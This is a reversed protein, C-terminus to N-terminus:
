HFGLTECPLLRERRQAEAHGINAAGILAAKGLTVALPHNRGPAAVEIERLVEGM